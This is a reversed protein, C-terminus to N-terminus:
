LMGSIWRSAPPNNRSLSAPMVSGSSFRLVIPGGEDVDEVFLRVLDAIDLEQRL